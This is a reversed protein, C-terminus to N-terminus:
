LWRLLPPNNLLAPVKHQAVPVPLLLVRHLQPFARLRRAPNEVPANVQSPLLLLVPLKMLLLDFHAPSPHPFVITSPNNEVKPVQLLALCRSDEVNLTAAGLVLISLNLYQKWPFELRSSRLATSKEFTKALQTPSSLVLTPPTMKALIKGDELSLIPLIRLLPTELQHSRRHRLHKKSRLTLLSCAPYLLSPRPLLERPPTPKPPQPIQRQLTCRHIHAVPSRQVQRHRLSPRNM